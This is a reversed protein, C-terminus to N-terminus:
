PKSFALMARSRQYAHRYTESRPFLRYAYALYQMARDSCCTTKLLSQGIQFAIEAVMANENAGADEIDVQIEHRKDNPYYVMYLHSVPQRAAAHQYISCVIPMNDEDRCVGVGRHNAYKPVGTPAKLPCNLKPDGRLPSSLVQETGDVKLALVAKASRGGKYLVRYRNNGSRYDQCGYDTKMGTFDSQCIKPLGDETVDYPFLNLCENAAAHTIYFIALISLVLRVTTGTLKRNDYMM